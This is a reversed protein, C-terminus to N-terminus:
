RVIPGVTCSASVGDGWILWVLRRATFLIAFCIHLYMRSIAASTCGTMSVCLTCANAITDILGIRWFLTGRNERGRGADKMSSPLVLRGATEGCYM